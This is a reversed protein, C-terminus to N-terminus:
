LDITHMIYGVTETGRSFRFFLNPVLVSELSFKLIFKESKDPTEPIPDRIQNSKFFVLSDIELIFSFMSLGHLASNMFECTIKM